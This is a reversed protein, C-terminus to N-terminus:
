ALNSLINCVRQFRSVFASLFKPFVHCLGMFLEVSYKLFISQVRYKVYIVWNVLFEKFNGQLNGEKQFSSLGKDSGTKVKQSFDPPLTKAGTLRKVLFAKWNTYKHQIALVFSIVIKCKLM